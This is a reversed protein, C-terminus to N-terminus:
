SGIHWKRKIDQIRDRMTKWDRLARVTFYALLLLSAWFLGSFIFLDTGELSVTKLTIGFAIAAGLTIGLFTLHISTSAESFKDLESGSVVYM